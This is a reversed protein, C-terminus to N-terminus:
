WGFQEQGIMDCFEKFTIDRSVISPDVQNKTIPYVGSNGVSNQYQRKHHAHDLM